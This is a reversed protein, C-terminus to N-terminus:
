AEEEAADDAEEEALERRFADKESSTMGSEIHLQMLHELEVTERPGRFPWLAKLEQYRQGDVTDLWTTM